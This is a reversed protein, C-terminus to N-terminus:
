TGSIIGKLYVRGTKLNDKFNNKNTQSTQKNLPNETRLLYAWNVTLNKELVNSMINLFHRRFPM